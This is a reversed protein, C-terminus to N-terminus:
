RKRKRPHITGTPAQADRGNLARLVTKKTSHNAQLIASAFYKKNRMDKRPVLGSKQNM